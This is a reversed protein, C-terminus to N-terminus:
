TQSTKIEVKSLGVVLPYLYAAFRAMDLGLFYLCRAILLLAVVGTCIYAVLPLHYAVLGSVVGGIVAGILSGCACSSHQNAFPGDDAMDLFCSGMHPNHDERPGREQGCNRSIRLVLAGGVVFAVVAGLLVSVVVCSTLLM